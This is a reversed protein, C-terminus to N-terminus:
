AYPATTILFQRFSRGTGVTSIPFVTLASTGSRQGQSNILHKSQHESEQLDNRSCLSQVKTKLDASVIKAQLMRREMNKIVEAKTSVFNALEEMDADREALDRTLEENQVKPNQFATGVRKHEKQLNQYVNHLYAFSQQDGSSQKQKGM